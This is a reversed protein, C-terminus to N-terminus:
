PQPYCSGGVVAAVDTDWRFRHEDLEDVKRALIAVGGFAPHTPTMEQLPVVQDPYLRMPHFLGAKIVEFGLAPSFLVKMGEDSFRWFDWPAEHLPWAFHTSHFTIGGVDLLRNIEMATLWPMALHEFVSLSFIADFRQGAFYHSLRHADGVVDTNEDPYYDFGTYSSVNPFFVRKSASGVSVVRSGIELVRLRQENSISIFENFLNSADTYAALPPPSAAVKMPLVIAQQQSRVQFTLDYRAQRPVHVEFGCHHSSHCQPYVALLDPRPYWQTIPVTVGDVCLSVEGMDGRRSIAWGRVGIGHNDSWIYDIGLFLDDTAITNTDLNNM